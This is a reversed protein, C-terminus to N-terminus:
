SGTAEHSSVRRVADFDWFFQGAEDRCARVAQVEFANAGHRKAIDKFGGLQWDHLRMKLKPRNQDDLKPKKMDNLVVVLHMLEHDILARRQASNASDWTAADITLRVDANDLARDALSVIKIVAAAPYGHHKLAQHNEGDEDIDSAMLVDFTVGAEALPEHHMLMVDRVLKVVESPAKEFTKAM